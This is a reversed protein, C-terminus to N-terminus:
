FGVILGLRVIRPTVNQSLANFNTAGLNNVRLLATNANFVNFVDGILRVKVQQFRFEKAVRLDTDWTNPYRFSDVEPSVLM